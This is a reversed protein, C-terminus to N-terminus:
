SPCLTYPNPDSLKICLPHTSLLDLTYSSPKPNYPAPPIQESGTPSKVDPYLHKPSSTIFIKNSSEWYQFKPIDPYAYKHFLVHESTDENTIPVITRSSTTEACNSGTWRIGDFGGCKARDELDFLM